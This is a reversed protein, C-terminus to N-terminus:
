RSQEDPNRRTGKEQLRRTKIKRAATAGRGGGGGGGDDGDGSGGDAGDGSGGGDGNNKLITKVRTSRRNAAEALRAFRFGVDARDM